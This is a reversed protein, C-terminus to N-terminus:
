PEASTFEFERGPPAILVGDILLEDGQQEMYWLVDQTDRGPAPRITKAVAAVRGDALRGVELVQSYGIQEDQELPEAYPFLSGVLYRVEPPMREIAQDSVLALAALGDGANFCAYLERIVAEAQARTTEAVPELPPAGFQAPRAEMEQFYAAVAGALEERTELPIPTATDGLVSERSRSEVRCEEPPPFLPRDLPVVTAPQQSAAGTSAAVALAVGLTIGARRGNM